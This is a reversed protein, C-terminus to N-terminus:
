RKEEEEGPTLSKEIDRFPKTSFPDKIEERFIVKNQTMNIIKGDALEAGIRVFYVKSDTGALMAIYGQSDRAIGQLAVESIQMGQLGPKAKKSGLTRGILLSVFPDRRGSPSYTFGGPTVAPELAPKRDGSTKSQASADGTATEQAVTMPVVCAILCVLISAILVRKLM